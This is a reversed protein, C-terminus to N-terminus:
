VHPTRTAKTLPLSRPGCETKPLGRETECFLGRGILHVVPAPSSPGSCLDYRSPAPGFIPVKVVKGWPHRDPVGLRSKASRNEQSDRIAQETGCVFGTEWGRLEKGEERFKLLKQDLLTRAQAAEASALTRLMWERGEHQGVDFPSAEV